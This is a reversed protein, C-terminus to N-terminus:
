QESDPDMGADNVLQFLSIGDINWGHSDAIEHLEEKTESLTIYLGKEGQRIGEMLFQLALTTKGTGPSGEVLYVRNQTLGGCLIDDLGPIGTRIRPSNTIAKETHFSDSMPRGLM